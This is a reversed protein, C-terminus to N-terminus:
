FRNLIKRALADQLKKAPDKAARNNIRRARDKDVGSAVARKVAQLREQSSKVKLTRAAIARDVQELKAEATLDGAELKEQLEERREQLQTLTSM